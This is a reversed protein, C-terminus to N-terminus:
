AEDLLDFAPMAEGSLMALSAGGGTSVHSVRDAAKLADVAAATDGGAVITVAGSKTAEAMASVIELTGVSFPKWEYVGMPGAWVVTKSTAIMQAYKTQTKPGIDLGMSGAPIDGNEVTIEGAHASFQTSCIHDTPLYLESKEIAAMEIFRKAQSLQATEVKSEGVNNGMTQLFTYAMAGGVLV